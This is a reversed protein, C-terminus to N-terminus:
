QGSRWEIFVGRRVRFDTERRIEAPLGDYAKVANDLNTYSGYRRWECGDDWVELRFPKKPRPSIM